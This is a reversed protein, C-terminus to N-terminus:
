KEKKQNQSQDAATIEEIIPHLLEFYEEGNLMISRDLRGANFFVETNEKLHSDVIVQLAEHFSFPPVSGM